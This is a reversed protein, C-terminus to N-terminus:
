AFATLRLPVVPSDDRDESALAISRPPRAEVSPVSAAGDCILFGSRQRYGPLVSRISDRPCNGILAMAQVSPTELALRIARAVLQGASSVSNNLQRFIGVAVVEVVPLTKIASPSSM